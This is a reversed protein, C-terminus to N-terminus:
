VNPGSCIFGDESYWSCYNKCLGSPEPPPMEESDTVDILWDLANEAIWSDYEQISTRIHDRNGDKAIGVLCVEKVDYGNQKLMWGYLHVQWWNQTSPWKYAGAGLTPPSKTLWGLSAKKSTKWDMVRGHEIDYCDVSGSVQPTTWKQEILFRDEFPDLLRLGEAISTHIASGMWAAIGDTEQVIAVGKMGLWARRKCDGAASPGLSRQRNRGRGQEKVNIAAMLIQEPTKLTDLM